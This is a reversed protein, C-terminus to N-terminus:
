GEWLGRMGCTISASRLATAANHAFRGGTRGLGGADGSCHQVCPQGSRMRIRFRAGQRAHRRRVCPLRCQALVPCVTAKATRPPLAMLLAVRISTRSGLADQGAINCSSGVQGTDTRNHKVFEVFPGRLASRPRARHKSTAQPAARHGTSRRWTGRWMSAPGTRGRKIAAGTYRGLPAGNGTLMWNAPGGCRCAVPKPFATAVPEHMREGSAEPEASTKKGPRLRSVAPQSASVPVAAASQV